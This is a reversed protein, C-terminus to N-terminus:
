SLLGRLQETKAVDLPKKGDKNLVDQMFDRARGTNNDCAAGDDVCGQCAFRVRQVVVAPWFNM